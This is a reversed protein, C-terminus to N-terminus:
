LKSRAQDILATISQVEVAVRNALRSVESLDDSSSDQAFDIRARELDRCISRLREPLTRRLLMAQASAFDNTARLVERADDSALVRGYDTVWRSDYVLARSNGNAPTFDRIVESLRDASLRTLEDQTESPTRPNGFGIYSKIEASNMARLWVGFRHHQLHSVSLKLEEAAHRVISIAIFSNRVGTANSGIRRGINRFTNVPDVRAEDDVMQRLFRARAEASWTKMGGIHRHALYSEVDRRDVAILCPILQLRNLQEQQPVLDVIPSDPYYGHLCLLAALRRNGEIVTYRNVSHESAIVILREAEFFGNDLFSYGLEHLVGHDILYEIMAERDGTIEEPLRPNFVDLDLLEIPINDPKM